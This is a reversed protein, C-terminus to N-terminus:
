MMSWFPLEVSYVSLTVTVPLMGSEMTESVGDALADGSPAEGAPARAQTRLSLVAKSVRSWHLPPAAQPYRGTGDGRWGAPHDPSPQYGPSGLEAQAWLLPATGAAILVLVQIMALPKM